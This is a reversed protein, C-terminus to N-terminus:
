AELVLDAPLVALPQSGQYFPEGDVEVFVNAADHLAHLFNQERPVVVGTAPLTIDPLDAIPLAEGDTAWRATLPVVVRMGSQPTRAVETSAPATTM